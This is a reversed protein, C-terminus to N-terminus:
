VLTNDLWAQHAASETKLRAVATDLRAREAPALVGAQAVVLDEALSVVGPHQKAATEAHIGPVRAPDLNFPMQAWLGPIKEIRATAPRIRKALPAFDRAM